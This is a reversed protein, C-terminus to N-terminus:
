ANKKPPNIEGTELDVTVGEGYKEIFPSQHDKLAKNAKLFLDTYYEEKSVIEHRELASKTFNQEATRYSSNIARFEELEKKSLKM